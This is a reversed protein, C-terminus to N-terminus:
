HRRRKAECERCVNMYGDKRAANKGFFLTDKPKVQHCMKCIKNPILNHQAEDLLRLKHATDAIKKPIQRRMMNNLQSESVSYGEQELVKLIIFNNKHAVMLTLIIYEKDSLAAEGVYYEVDYCLTRTSSQPYAYSKRLLDVYNRLLAYIHKPDEYDIRNYSVYWFLQGKENRPVEQLPPQEIDHPKPSRKRRCWEELELWYGTDRDFNFIQPDPAPVDVFHLTPKYADKIYYQTRRMDILMHHMKWVDYNSRPHAAVWESQPIIGEYQKLLNDWYDISAWTERMFPIVNGNADFDDGPELLTGDDAWVSRKITPCFKKYRPRTNAAEKETEALTIENDLLADLSQVKENKKVYSDYRRTPNLIEKKDVSSMYQEDKGYLIYDAMQELNKANPTEDLSQLIKDVATARDKAYYIDFDLSYPKM